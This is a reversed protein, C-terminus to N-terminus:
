STITLRGAENAPPGTRLKRRASKREPTIAGSVTAFNLMCGRGPGCKAHLMGSLLLTKSAAGSPMPMCRTCPAHTTANFSLGCECCRVQASHGPVPVFSVLASDTGQDPDSTRRDWRKWRWQQEGCARHDLFHDWFSSLRLPHCPHLRTALLSASSRKRSSPAQVRSKPRESSFQLPFKARNKEIPNPIKM